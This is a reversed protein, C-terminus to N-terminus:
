VKFEAKDPDPSFPVLSEIGRRTWAGAVTVFDKLELPAHFLGCSSIWRTLYERAMITNIRVDEGAVDRLVGDLTFLIKRFMFLAAPFSVGALAIRDLLRM